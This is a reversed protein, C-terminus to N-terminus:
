HERYRCQVSWTPRLESAQRRPLVLHHRSPLERKEAERPVLDLVKDSCTGKVGEKTADKRNTRWLEGAFAAPHCGHEGAPLVRYQAV